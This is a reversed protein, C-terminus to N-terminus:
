TRISPSIFACVALADSLCIPSHSSCTAPPLYDPTHATPLPPASPRIGPLHSLQPQLQGPQKEKARSSAIARFPGCSQAVARLWPHQGASFRPHSLALYRSAFNVFIEVRFLHPFIRSLPICKSAQHISRALLSLLSTSSFFNGYQMCRGAELFNCGLAQGHLTSLRRRCPL